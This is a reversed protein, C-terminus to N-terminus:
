QTVCGASRRAKNTFAGFGATKKCRNVLHLHNECVCHAYCVEEM